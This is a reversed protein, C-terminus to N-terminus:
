TLNSFVQDRLLSEGSEHAACGQSHTFLSDGECIGFEGYRRDVDRPLRPRKPFRVQVPDSNHQAKFWRGALRLRRVIFM